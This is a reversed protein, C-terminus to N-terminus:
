SQRWKASVDSRVAISLPCLYREALGCSGPQSTGEGFDRLSPSIFRLTGTESIRHGEYAVHVVPRAAAAPGGASSTRRRRCEAAATQM